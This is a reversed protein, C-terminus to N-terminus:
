VDAEYVSFAFRGAIVRGRGYLVIREAFFASMLGSYDVIIFVTRTAHLLYM